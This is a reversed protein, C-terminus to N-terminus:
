QSKIGLLIPISEVLCWVFLSQEKQGMYSAYMGAKRHRSILSIAESREHWRCLKALESHRCNLLIDSM